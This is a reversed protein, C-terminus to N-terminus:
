VSWIPRCTHLSADPEREKNVIAILVFSAMASAVLAKVANASSRLCKKRRLHQGIWKFFLKVQWRSKYPACITLAPLAPYTALFFQTQDSAPDQFRSRRLHEPQKNAAYDGNLM